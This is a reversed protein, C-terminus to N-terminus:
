GRSTRSAAASPRKKLLAHTQRHLAVRQQPSRSRSQKPSRGRMTYSGFLMLPPPGKPLFAYPMGNESTKQKVFKLMKPYQKALQQISEATQAKRMRRAEDGGIAHGGHSRYEHAATIGLFRIAGGDASWAKLTFEVDTTYGSGSLEIRPKSKLWVGFCNGDLLGIKQSIRGPLMNRPSKCPALSWARVKLDECLDFALSVLPLLDATPLDEVDLSKKRRWEIKPVTDSMCLIKDEAAFFEFIRNYQATLGVGGPHVQVGAFGHNRLYQYYNDYECTGDERRSVPDVFIHVCGFNWGYRRLLMLTQNCLEQERRFSPIAIPMCRHRIQRYSDLSVGFPGRRGDQRHILNHQPDAMSVDIGNAPVFETSPRVSLPKMRQTACCQICILSGSRCHQEVDHLSSMRFLCADELGSAFHYRFVM